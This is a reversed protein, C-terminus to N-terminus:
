REGGNNKIAAALQALVEDLFGQAESMEERADRLVEEAQSVAAKAESVDEAASQALRLLDQVAHRSRGSGPGSAEPKVDNLSQQPDDGQADAAAQSCATIYDQLAALNTSTIGRAGKIWNYITSPSVGIIRAATYADHGSAQMARTLAASVVGYGGGSM